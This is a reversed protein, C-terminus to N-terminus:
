KSSKIKTLIANLGIINSYINNAVIALVPKGWKPPPM